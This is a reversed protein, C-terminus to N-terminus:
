DSKLQIELQLPLQPTIHQWSPSCCPDGLGVAPKYFQRVEARFNWFACVPRIPIDGLRASRPNLSFLEFITSGERLNAENMQLINTSFHILDSLLQPLGRMAPKIKASVAWRYM